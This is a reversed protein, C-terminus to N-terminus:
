AQYGAEVIAAKIADVTTKKPDYTVAAEKDALSVKVASVGSVSSIAKTATTLYIYKTSVIIILNFELSAKL